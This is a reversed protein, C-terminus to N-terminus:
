RPPTFLASFAKNRRVLILRLREKIRRKWPNKYYKGTGGGVGDIVPPTNLLVGTLSCENFINLFCDELGKGSAVDIQLHALEFYRKYYPVSAIYFRTDIYSLRCERLPSFVNDFVGKCLFTGNWDAL